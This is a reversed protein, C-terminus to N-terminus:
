ARRAYVVQKLNKKSGTSLNDLVTVQWGGNVLAESVSSGIFEAGTVLAKM